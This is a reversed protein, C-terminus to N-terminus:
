FFVFYYDHGIVIPPKPLNLSEVYTKLWKAYGKLTQDDLAENDGYGPLDPNYVKYGRRSLEQAIQYLGFHDGRLGHILIIAESHRATM